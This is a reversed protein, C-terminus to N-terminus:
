SGAQEHLYGIQKQFTPKYQHSHLSGNFVASVILFAWQFGPESHAPQPM